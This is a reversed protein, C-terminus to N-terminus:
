FFFFHLLRTRFLFFSRLILSLCFIWNVCSSKFFRSKRKSYILCNLGTMPKAVLQPTTSLPSISKRYKLSCFLKTLTDARTRTNLICFFSEASRVQLHTPLSVGGFEPGTSYWSSLPMGCSSTSINRQVKIHLSEYAIKAVM